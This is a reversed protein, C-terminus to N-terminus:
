WNFYHAAAQRAHIRRKVDYMATDARVLVMEADDGPELLAIGISATTGTAAIAAALTDAVVQAAVADGERLLVAFEDGGIRGIVDTGRLRERLVEAVHVLVRDGARHGYEDNVQKVRDLDLLLVAGADGSRSRETIRRSLEAEFRRRNFLGTLVDHDAMHRLEAEQSRRAGIDIMQAFLQVPEGDEGRLVTTRLLIWLPAGDPLELCGESEWVTTEASIPKALAITSDDRHDPHVFDEAHRGIIAEAERGLLSSLAPNVQQYRGDISCIGMGVPAHEFAAAFLATAERLAREAHLRAEIDTITSLYGRPEGLADTLRRARGAVWVLKGDPRQVRYDLFFERQEAVAARWEEEMRVVDDRHPFDSWLRGIATEPGVGAIECYRGNVYRCVGEIDFEAIGVPMSEALENHRPRYSPRSSAADVRDHIEGAVVGARTVARELMSPLQHEAGRPLYDQAGAALAAHVLDGDDGDGDGLVVVAIDPRRECIARVGALGDAGSLSMSLVLADHQRRELLSLADALSGTLDTHRGHEALTARISLARDTDSDAVLTCVAAHHMHADNPM